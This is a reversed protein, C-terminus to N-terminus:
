ESQCQWVRGGFSTVGNNFENLLENAEDYTLGNIQFALKGDGDRIQVPYITVGRQALQRSARYWEGETLTIEHGAITQTKQNAYQWLSPIDPTNIIEDITNEYDPLNNLAQICDDNKM